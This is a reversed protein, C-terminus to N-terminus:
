LVVPDGRSCPAPDPARLEARADGERDAPERHGSGSCRTPPAPRAEKVTKLWLAFDRAEARGAADWAVEIARLFRFWALLEYAYSRLSSPRADDALMHHLFESVAPVEAGNEDLLVFPRLPDGTEAVRGVRAVKLAGVDRVGVDM